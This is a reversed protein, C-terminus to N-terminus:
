WLTHLAGACPALRPFGSMGSMGLRGSGSRCGGLTAMACPALREVPASEGCCCRVRRDGVIRPLRRPATAARSCSVPLSRRASRTDPPTQVLLPRPAAVSPTHSPTPTSPHPWSAGKCIILHQPITAGIDQSLGVANYLMGRTVTCCEQPLWSIWRWGMARSLTM